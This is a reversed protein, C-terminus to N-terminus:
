KEVKWVKNNGLEIFSVLGEAKMSNLLVSVYQRNTKLEKSIEQITPYKIENIKELLKEKTVTM